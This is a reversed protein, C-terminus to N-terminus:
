RWDGIMVFPAWYFPHSYEPMAKLSLQAQRLAAPKTMGKKLWNEYFSKMLISTSKDDVSWLTALISPTGAYIFGRSMGAWDEGGRVKTLATECASLTVLNAKQLNLGFVDPIRLLGDSNEDQALLLGSQLPQMDNFEGHCAFHVVDFDGSLATLRTKTADARSFVQKSTFMNEVSQVESEAFPLSIKDTAPNAFALFNGSDTKRKKVIFEILSSAPAVSLDYKDVLAKSGDTLCAFPVKHLVDHPVIVLKKTTIDAEVPAVMLSYLEQAKKSFDERAQKTNEATPVEDGALAIVPAPRRTKGTINGGILGAVDSQLDKATLDKGDKKLVRVQVDNKTIIWVYTKDQATYYELVTVDKDLLAQMTAPDAPLTCIISALEANKMRVEKLFAEYEIQTKELEAMVQEAEGQPLKESPKQRIEMRKQLASLRRQYERDQELVKEDEPKASRLERSALMEFFLRSKLMEAYRLAERQAGPGNEQLLVRIMGEYAEARKFGTGTASELFHEKMTSSLKKRQQEILNLANEFFEKAKIFNGEGEFALGVGINYEILSEPLYATLLLKNFQERAEKYSGKSLYCKGLGLSNKEQEFFEFAENLNGSELAFFAISSFGQDIDPHDNGLAKKRIDFCQQYLSKAKEYAGIKQYLVALNNLVTAVAANGIGLTREYIAMSKKYLSEAATYNGTNFYILALSQNCEAVCQHNAGFFNEYIKMLQKYLPEAAGYNGTNYYFLALNNLSTSIDPHNYGLKNKDIEFAKKLLSESDAYNSAHLYNLALSTPISIATADPTDQELAKEYISFADESLPELEEPIYNITSDYFKTLEELIALTDPHEPGLSKERIALARKLLAESAIEDGSEKYFIALTSLYAAINPHDPGLAKEKIELARKLLLAAGTYNGSKGYVLGLMVLTKGTYPNETGLVKERIDLAKKFLIKSDTYNGINYYLEALDHQSTATDPHEPGGAAVCFGM